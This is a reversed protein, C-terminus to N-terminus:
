CLGGSNLDQVARASRRATKLEASRIKRNAALPGGGSRQLARQLNRQLAYNVELM